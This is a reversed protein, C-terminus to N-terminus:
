TSNNEKIIKKLKNKRERWKKNNEDQKTVDDTSKINKTWPKATQNITKNNYTAKTENKDM